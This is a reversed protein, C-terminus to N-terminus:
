PKRPVTTTSNRLRIQSQLGLVAAHCAERDKLIEQLKSLSMHMSDTFGDLWRMRQWGRRRGGEIKGLMLTEEILWNKMVPLWLIPTEAEADTRGTFIWSWNGKPHVPQIDGCDLPSELTKELGVTQFCWNLGWGENRNLEWRHVHDSSFGYRKVIRMKLPFSIDWSKLISDLNTMDKKELFCADKFKMAVTVMWLSKPAWSFSTQWQKWEKGWRNAM